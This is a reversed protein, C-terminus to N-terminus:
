DHACEREISAARNSHAIGLVQFINEEANAKAQRIFALLNGCEM